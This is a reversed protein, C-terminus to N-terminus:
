AEKRPAVVVTIHSTRKLIRSASGKARPRIRKLSPGEDVYAAKVFLDDARMGNNHEANAVASRLVKEVDVAVARTCFHLIDFAAAINKGRILDIVLRAKGPSVRVWKATARVERTEIDTSKTAM